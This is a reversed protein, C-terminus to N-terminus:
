SFTGTGANQATMATASNMTVVFDRWTNQAITATGTLTWGTGAVVTWAFAGSSENIIRLTFSASELRPIVTSVAPLTISKGATLAGTLALYVTGASGTIQAATATFNATSSDESYAAAPAQPGGIPASGGGELIANQATLM